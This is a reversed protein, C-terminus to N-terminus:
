DTEKSDTTPIKVTRILRAPSDVHLKDHRAGGEAYQCAVSCWLRNARMDFQDGCVPCTAAHSM